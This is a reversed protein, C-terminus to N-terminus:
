GRMRGARRGAGGDVPAPDPMAAGPAMTLGGTAAGGEADVLADQRGARHADRGGVAVEEAAQAALIGEDTQGARGHDGGDKRGADVGTDNVGAAVQVNRAAFLRGFMEELEGTRLDARREVGAIEDDGARVEAAAGAALLGGGHHGAPGALRADFGGDM